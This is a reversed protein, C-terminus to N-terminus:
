GSWRRAVTSSPGLVPVMSTTDVIVVRMWWFVEIWQEDVLNVLTLGVFASANMAVRGTKTRVFTPDRFDPKIGLADALAVPLSCYPQDPKYLATHFQQTGSCSRVGIPIEMRPFKRVLSGQRWLRHTYRFTLKDPEQCNSNSVRTWIWSPLMNQWWTMRTKPQEIIWADSSQVDTSLDRRISVM